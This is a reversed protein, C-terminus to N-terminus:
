AVAELAYATTTWLGVIAPVAADLVPALESLAAAPNDEAIRLAAAAIRIEPHDRVQGALGDLIQGAREVQSLRV